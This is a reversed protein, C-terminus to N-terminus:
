WDNCEEECQPCSPNILKKQLMSTLFLVAVM